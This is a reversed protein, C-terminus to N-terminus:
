SAVGRGRIGDGPEGLPKKAFYNREKGDLFTRKPTPVDPIRKGSEIGQEQELLEQVSFSWAFPSLM